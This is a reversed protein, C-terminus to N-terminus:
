NGYYKPKHYWRRRRHHPPFALFLLRFMILKDAAQRSSVRFSMSCWERSRRRHWGFIYLSEFPAYNRMACALLFFHSFLSLLLAVLLPYCRARQPWNVKLPIWIREGGSIMLMFLIVTRTAISKEISPSRACAPAGFLSHFPSETVVCVGGVFLPAPLMKIWGAWSPPIGASKEGGHVRCGWCENM